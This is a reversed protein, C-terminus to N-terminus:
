RRRAYGRSTGEGALDPAQRRILATMPIALSVIAWVAMFTTGSLNATIFTYVVLPSYFAAEPSKEVDAQLAARASRLWYAIFLALPVIGSSQALYLFGNHPKIFRHKAMGGVNSDGVGILPSDLFSDIVSPWASLRGTDETGRAAYLQASREFIGMEVVILGLCMVLLLPLFGSKLLHRSAVVIGVAAALM